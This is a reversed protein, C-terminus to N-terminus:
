TRCSGKELMFKCLQTASCVPMINIYLGEQARVLTYVCSRQLGEFVWMCAQTDNGNPHTRAYM